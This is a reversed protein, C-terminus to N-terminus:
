FVHMVIAYTVPRGLSAIGDAVGLDIGVIRKVACSCKM